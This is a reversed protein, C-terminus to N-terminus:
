VVPVVLQTLFYKQQHHASTSNQEGGGLQLPPQKAKQLTSSNSEPTKQIRLNHALDQTM